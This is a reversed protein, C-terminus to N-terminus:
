LDIIDCLDVYILVLVLGRDTDHTGANVVRVGRTYMNFTIKTKLVM